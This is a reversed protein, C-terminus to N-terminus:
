VNFEAEQVSMAPDIEPKLAEPRKCHPTSRSICLTKEPDKSRLEASTLLWGPVESRM